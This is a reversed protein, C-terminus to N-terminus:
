GAAEGGGRGRAPARRRGARSREPCLGGPRAARRRRFTHRLARALSRDRGPGQRRELWSAPGLAQRLLRSPDGGAWMQVPERPEVAQRWEELHEWAAKAAAKGRVYHEAEGAADDESAFQGKEDRHVTVAGSSLGLPEPVAAAALAHCEAFSVFLGADIGCHKLLIALLLSKSDCDGRRFLLRSIPPRLGRRLAVPLSYPIGQVFRSLYTALRYRDVPGDVGAACEERLKRAM